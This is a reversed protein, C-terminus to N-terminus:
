IKIKLTKITKSYQEIKNKLINTINGEKFLKNKINKKQLQNIKLRDEKTKKRRKSKKIKM